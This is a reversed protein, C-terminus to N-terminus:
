GILKLAIYPVINFVLVVIKYQALYQFYARKLESEELGFMRSHIRIISERGGLITATTLIMIGINILACWGFFESITETTM